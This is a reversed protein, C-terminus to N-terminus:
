KKWVDIKCRGVLQSHIDPWVSIFVIIQWVENFIALGM